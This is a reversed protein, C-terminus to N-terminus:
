CDNDKGIEGFCQLLKLNGSTDYCAIAYRSTAAAPATRTEGAYWYGCYHLRPTEPTVTTALVTTDDLLKVIYTYTCETTDSGAVGGDKTVLVPFVDNATSSPPMGDPRRDYDSGVPDPATRQLLTNIVPERM